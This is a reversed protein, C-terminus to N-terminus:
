PADIHTILSVNFSVLFLIFYFLIFNLFIYQFCYLCLSMAFPLSVIPLYIYIGLWIGSPYKTDLWMGVRCQFFFLGWIRWMQFPFLFLSFDGYKSQLNQCTALVYCPKWYFIIRSKRDTRYGFIALTKM